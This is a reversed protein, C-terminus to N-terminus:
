SLCRPTWGLAARLRGSDLSLDAPREAELGAAVRTGAAVLAADFGLAAAERLALERRSLSEDGGCHLLGCLQDQETLQVLARALDLVAVPTRIEDTFMPPRPGAGTAAKKLAAALASSASRRGMPAPGTVLGPRLVLAGPHASLVAQEGKLKTQGYVQLPRAEHEERWGSRSGDFVQDTSVHVLRLERAACGRALEGPVRTNLSAALMPNAAAPAIDPVAACNVVAAPRVAVLLAEAAGSACLDVARDSGSRAAGVLEHGAARFAAAAAQGVFGTAGILLVKM